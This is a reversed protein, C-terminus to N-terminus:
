SGGIKALGEAAAQVLEDDETRQVQDMLPQVAMPSRMAGLLVVLWLLDRSNDDRWRELAESLSPITSEGRALVREMARVPMGVPWRTIVDILDDLSHNSYDTM